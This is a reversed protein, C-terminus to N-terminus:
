KLFESGIQSESKDYNMSENLENSLDSRDKSNCCLQLTSSSALIRYEADTLRVPRHFNPDGDRGDRHISLISSVRSQLLADEKGSGKVEEKGSDYDSDVEVGPIRLNSRTTSSELAPISPPHPNVGNHSDNVDNNSLRRRTLKNRNAGNGDSDSSSHGNGGSDSNSHANNGSNNHRNGHSNSHSNSLKKDAHQQRPKVVRSPSSKSPATKTTQIKISRSKTTLRQNVESASESASQGSKSLRLSEGSESYSDFGASKVLSIKSKNKPKIQNKTILELRGTVPLPQNMINNAEKRKEQRQSGKGTVPRHDKHTLNNDPVTSANWPAAQTPAARPTSNAPKLSPSSSASTKVASKRNKVTDSHATATVNAAATSSDDLEDEGSTSVKRNTASNTVSTNAASTGVAAAANAFARSRASLKVKLERTKPSQVTLLPSLGGHGFPNVGVPRQSPSKPSANRSQVSPASTKPQVKESM